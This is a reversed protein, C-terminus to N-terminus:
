YLPSPVSEFLNYGAYISFADLEEDTLSQAQKIKELDRFNYGALKPNRVILRPLYELFAEFLIRFQHLPYKEGIIRGLRLTIVHKATM